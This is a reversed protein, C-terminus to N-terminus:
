ASSSTRDQRRSREADGDHRAALVQRRQGRSQDSTQIIRDSDGWVQGTAPLLVIRVGAQDAMSQLGEVSQAMLSNADVARRVLEVKGSEIRELDLIDNILRVLRDTNNVAIELMRQGKEGIPGILGSSLLGLAGRISTLPTRLEHSVTSVFESKLREIARRETVDRFMVVAGQQNGVDDFMPTSSYEVPFSTGDKRWYTDEALALTEGRAIAHTSACEAEPWHTGDPHSHHVAEHISKGEVDSLTMGFMELGAPNIFKARGDLAIGMIGDTASNLILASERALRANIEAIKEAANKAVLLEENTATLEGTRLAM